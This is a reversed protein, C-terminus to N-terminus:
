KPSATPDKPEPHPTRNTSCSSRRLVTVTMWGAPSTRQIQVRLTQPSLFSILDHNQHSSQFESLKSNKCVKNQIKGFILEESGKGSVIVQYCLNLRMEFNKEAEKRLQYKYLVSHRRCIHHIFYIQNKSLSFLLLATKKM